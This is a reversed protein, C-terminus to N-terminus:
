CVTFGIILPLFAPCLLGSSCTPRHWVEKDLLERARAEAEAKSAVAEAAREEWAKAKERWLAVQREQEAGQAAEAQGAREEAAAERADAARAADAVRQAADKSQSALRRDGDDRAAALVARHSEDQAQLLGALRDCEGLLRAARAEAEEVARRRQDESARESAARAAAAAERESQLMQRSTRASVHEMHTISEKLQARRLRDREALREAVEGCALAV